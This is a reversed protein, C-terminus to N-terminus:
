YFLYMLGLAVISVNTLLHAKVKAIGVEVAETSADPSKLYETVVAAGSFGVGAGLTLVIGVCRRVAVAAVPSARCVDSFQGYLVLALICSSMHLNRAGKIKILAHHFADFQSPTLSDRHPPVLGFTAAGSEPKALNFAGDAAGLLALLSTFLPLAAPRWFAPSPNLTAM